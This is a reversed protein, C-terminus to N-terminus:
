GRESYSAGNLSLTRKPKRFAKPSITYEFDYFNKGWIKWKGKKWDGSIWFDVDLDFQGFVFGEQKVFRNDVVVRVKGVREADFEITGALLPHPRRSSPGYALL